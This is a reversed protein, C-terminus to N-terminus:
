AGGDSVAYNDPFIKGDSDTGPCNKWGAPCTFPIEGYEHNEKKSKEEVNRGDKFIKVLPAIQIKAVQNLLNNLKKNSKILSCIVGAFFCCIVFLIGAIWIM